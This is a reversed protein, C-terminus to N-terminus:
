QLGMAPLWRDVNFENEKKFSTATSLKCTQSLFLFQMYGHGAQHRNLFLRQCTAPATAKTSMEKPLWAKLKESAKKANPTHKRM